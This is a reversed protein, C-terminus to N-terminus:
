VEGSTSKLQEWGIEDISISSLLDANGEGSGEGEEPIQLFCHPWRDSEKIIAVRCFNNRHQMFKELESHTDLLFSHEQADEEVQGPAVLLLLWFSADM